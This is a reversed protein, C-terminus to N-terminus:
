LVTYMLMVIQFLFLLSGYEEPAYSGCKVLYYIFILLDIYFLDIFLYFIFLDVFLSFAMRYHFGLCSCHSNPANPEKCIVPVPTTM